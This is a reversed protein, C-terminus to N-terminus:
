KLPPTPENLSHSFGILREPVHPNNLFIKEPLAIDAKLPSVLSLNMWHRFMSKDSKLSKIKEWPIVLPKHGFSFPFGVKLTLCYQNTVVTLCNKYQTKNFTGYLFKFKTNSGGQMQSTNNHWPLQEALSSWGTVKSLLTLFSIWLLIFGGFIILSFIQQNIEFNM